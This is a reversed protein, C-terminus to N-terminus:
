AAAAAFRTPVARLAFNKLDDDASAACVRKLEFMLRGTATERWYWAEAEAAARAGPQSAVSELHYARLDHAVLRIAPVRQLSPNYPATRPDAIFRALWDIAREPTLGSLGVTSRGRRARTLEHWTSLEAIERKAREALTEEDEAGGFSVPCVFAASDGEVAPAEEGFDELVPGSPAELLRLTALLVRRQFAPDNPVGLPRGLVFPVWLARPPRMAVTHERILSVHTTAIGEEELYRSLAGV